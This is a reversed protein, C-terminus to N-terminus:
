KIKITDLLLINNQSNNKIYETYFGFLFKNNCLFDYANCHIEEGNSCGKEVFRVQYHGNADTTYSEQVVIIYKGKLGLETYVNKLTIKAGKVPVLGSDTEQFVYGVGIEKRYTTKGCDDCAMCLFALLLLICIKIKKM